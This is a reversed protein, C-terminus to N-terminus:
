RAGGVAASQGAERPDGGALRDCNAARHIWCGGADAYHAALDVVLKVLGTLSIVDSLNTAELLRARGLLRARSKRKTVRSSHPNPHDATGAADNASRQRLARHLLRKSAPDTEAFSNSLGM